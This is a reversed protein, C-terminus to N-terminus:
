GQSNYSLCFRPRQSNTMDSKRRTRRRRVGKMTVGQSATHCAVNDQHGRLHKHFPTQMRSTYDTFSSVMKKHTFEVIACHESHLSKNVVVAVMMVDPV